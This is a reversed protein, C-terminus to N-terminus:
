PHAQFFSLFLASISSRLFVVDATYKQLHLTARKREKTKAKNQGKKLGMGLQFSTKHVSKERTETGIQAKEFGSELYFVFASITNSVFVKARPVFVNLRLSLCKLAPSSRTSLAREFKLWVLLSVQYLFHYVFKEKCM